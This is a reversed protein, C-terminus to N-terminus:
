FGSANEFGGQRALRIIIHAVSEIMEQLRNIEEPTFGEIRIWEYEPLLIEASAFGGPIPKEIEVRVLEKEDEMYADSHVIETDDDLTMFPHLM